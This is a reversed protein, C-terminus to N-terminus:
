NVRRRWGFCLSLGFGITLLAAASPEPVHVSAAASTLNTQVIALDRLTVLGDGDVDGTSRTGSSRGFNLALVAVDARDVRGDENIDGVVSPSEVRLQTIQTTWQDNASVIEQFTWFVHPDTPDVVTASYDGWRNRNASDLRQYDDVGAALLVPSGFVISGAVEKGAVAYNSVPQSASSGNFGIVAEGFNNVAISPFYYSMEPDSIIGSQLVQCAEPDLEFWRIAARKQYEIAQVAWASGNQVIVSGSLRDDGTSIARKAAGGITPQPAPPPPWLSEVEATGVSEVTASNVSGGVAACQIGPSPTSRVSSLVLHPFGAGNMDVAPQLTIGLDHRNEILTRNAVGPPSSLLDAKPLVLM